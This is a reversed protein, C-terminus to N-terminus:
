AEDNVRQHKLRAMAKAHIRRLRTCSFWCWHCLMAKGGRWVSDAHPLEVCDKRRYQRDFGAIGDRDL